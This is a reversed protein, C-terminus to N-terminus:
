APLSCALPPLSPYPPLTRWRLTLGRVEPLDLQNFCTHAAPLLDKSGFAKHINFKQVGRMGQLQSFGEIPVQALAASVLRRPSPLTFPAPAASVAPPSQPWVKKLLWAGCLSLKKLGRGGGM